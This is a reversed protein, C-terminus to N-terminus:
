AQLPVQPPPGSPGADKLEEQIALAEERVRLFADVLMPDFHVGRHAQLYKLAEESLWAAKYPRRSTLADYVDAVAVIRAPLSIHDGVLGYPYGLGDFKEHHGLAILAGM